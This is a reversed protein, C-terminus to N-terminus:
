MRFCIVAKTSSGMFFNASPRCPAIMHDLTQWKSRQEWECEQREDPDRSVPRRLRRVFNESLADFRQTSFAGQPADCRAFCFARDSPRAIAGLAAKLHQRELRIKIQQREIDAAKFHAFPEVAFGRPPAVRARPQACQGAIFTLGQEGGCIIAIM